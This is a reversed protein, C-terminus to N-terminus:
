VNNFGGYGISNDIKQVRDKSKVIKVIEATDYRQVHKKTICFTHTKVFEMNHTNETDSDGIITNEVNCRYWYNQQVLGKFRQSCLVVYEFQERFPKALRSFIPTTGIILLRRKRMMNTVTLWDTSMEKSLASPFQNAIEDLFLIVGKTGNDTKLITEIGRYEIYPHFSIPVNSIIKVDPKKQVINYILDFASLSKGSGQLGCFLLIGFSQFQDPDAELLRKRYNSFEFMSSLSIKNKLISHSFM